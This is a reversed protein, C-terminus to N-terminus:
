RRRLGGGRPMRPMRAGMQPRSPRGMSTSPRSRSRDVSRIGSEGPLSHAPRNPNDPRNERREERREQGKERRQEIHEVRDEYYDENYYGYYPYGYGGYVTQVRTHTSSSGGDNACGNLLLAGPFLIILWLRNSLSM